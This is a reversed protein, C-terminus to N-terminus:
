SCSLLCKEKLWVGFMRPCILPQGYIVCPELATCVLKKAQLLRRVYRHSAEHRARHPQPHPGPGAAAAAGAAAGRQARPDGHRHGGRHARPRRAGPGLTADAQLQGRLQAADGAAGAGDAAGPIVGQLHEQLM